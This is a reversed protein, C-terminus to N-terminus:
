NSWPVQASSKIKFVHLASNQFMRHEGDGQFNRHELVQAHARIVWRPKGISSATYQCGASKLSHQGKIELTVLDLASGSLPLLEEEGTQERKGLFVINLADYPGEAPLCGHNIGGIM